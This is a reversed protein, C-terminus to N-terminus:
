TRAAAVQQGAFCVFSVPRFEWIFKLYFQPSFYFHSVWCQREDLRGATSNLLGFFPIYYCLEVSVFVSVPRYHFLFPTSFSRPLPLPPPLHLLPCNNVCLSYLYRGASQPTALLHTIHLEISPPQLLGARPFLTREGDISASLQPQYTTLTLTFLCVAVKIPRGGGGSGGGEGGGGGGGGNKM